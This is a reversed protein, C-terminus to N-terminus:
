NWKQTQQQDKEMYQKIKKEEWTKGFVINPGFVSVAQAVLGIGWFFATIFNKFQFYSEGPNLNQINFYIIYMNVVCYVTLHVYFGKIKKVRKAAIEYQLQQNNNSLIEM